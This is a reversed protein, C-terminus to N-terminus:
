MSCHDVLKSPSQFTISSLNNLVKMTTRIVKFNPNRLHTILSGDNFNFERRDFLLPLTQVLRERHEFNYDDRITFNRWGRKPHQVEIRVSTKIPKSALKLFLAM